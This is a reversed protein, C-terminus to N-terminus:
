CMVMFIRLLCGLVPVVMMVLSMGGTGTGARISGPVVALLLAVPAMAPGLGPSLISSPYFWCYCPGTSHGGRMDGSFDLLSNCLLSAGPVLVLQAAAAITLCRQFRIFLDPFVLVMLLLVVPAM